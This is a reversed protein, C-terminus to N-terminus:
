KHQKEMLIDWNGTVICRIQMFTITLILLISLPCFIIPLIVPITTSSLYLLYIGGGITTFMLMAFIYGIWAGAIESKTYYKYKNM